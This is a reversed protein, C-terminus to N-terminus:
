ISQEQIDFIILNGYMRLYHINMTDNVNAIPNKFEFPFMFMNNTYYGGIEVNLNKPYLLKTKDYIDQDFNTIAIYKIGSKKINKLMQLGMLLPLHQMVEKIIILSKNGNNCELITDCLNLPGESFIMNTNMKNTEKAKELAIKSVDFGYYRINKNSEPPVLDEQWACDGCIDYINTIKYDEIFKKLFPIRFKNIEKTSGGGSLTEKRNGWKKNEYINDFVKYIDAM